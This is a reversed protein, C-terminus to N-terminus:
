DDAKILDPNMKGLRIQSHFEHGFFMSVASYGIIRKDELLQVIADGKTGDSKPGIGLV